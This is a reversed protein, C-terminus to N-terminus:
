QGKLKIKRKWSFAMSHSLFLVFFAVVSSFGLLLVSMHPPISSVSDFSFSRERLLMGVYSRLLRVCGCGNSGKRAKITPMRRTKTGISVGISVGISMRPWVASTYFGTAVLGSAVMFYICSYGQDLEELRQSFM